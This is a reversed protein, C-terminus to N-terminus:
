LLQYVISIANACHCSEPTVWAASNLPTTTNHCLSVPFIQYKFGANVDVWAAERTERRNTVHIFWKSGAGGIRVFPFILASERVIFSFGSVM